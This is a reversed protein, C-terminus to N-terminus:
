AFVITSAALPKKWTPSPRPLDIPAAYRADLDFRAHDTKFGIDISQRRGSPHEPYHTHEAVRYNHSLLM